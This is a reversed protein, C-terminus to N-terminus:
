RGRAYFVTGGLPREVINEAEVLCIVASLHPQAPAPPTLSLASFTFEISEGGRKRVGGNYVALAPERHTFVDPARTYIHFLFISPRDAALISVSGDCLGDGTAGREAERYVGPRSSKKRSLSLLHSKIGHQRSKTEAEETGM